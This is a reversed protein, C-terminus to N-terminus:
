HGHGGGLVANTVVADGPRLAGDALETWDADALGVRVEVQTFQVGDYRWVRRASSDSATRTAPPADKREGIADLM